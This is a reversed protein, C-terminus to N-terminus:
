VAGVTCSMDGGTIAYVKDEGLEAASLETVDVQLYLSAMYLATDEDILGDQTLRTADLNVMRVGTCEEDALYQTDVVITELFTDEPLTDGHRIRISFTKADGILNNDSAYRMIGRIGHVCARGVFKQCEKAIEEGAENLGKIELANGEDDYVLEFLTSGLAAVVSGIPKPTELDESPATTEAPAKNGCAVLAFLMAFCLLGALFKKM